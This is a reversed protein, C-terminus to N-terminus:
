GSQEIVFRCTFRASRCRPARDLRPTADAEHRRLLPRSKDAPPKSRLMGISSNQCSKRGPRRTGASPCSWRKCPGRAASVVWPSSVVQEWTPWARATTQSISGQTPGRPPPHRSRTGARHQWHRRPIGPRTIPTAAAHVARLNRSSDDTAVFKTGRLRRPDRLGWSPGPNCLDVPGHPLIHRRPHQRHRRHVGRATDGPRDLGGARRRATRCRRLAPVRHPTRIEALRAAAPWVVRPVFRSPPAPRSRSAPGDPHGAAYSPTRASSPLRQMDGEVKVRFPRHRRSQM